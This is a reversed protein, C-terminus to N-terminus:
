DLAMRDLSSKASRPRNLATPADRAAGTAEPLHDARHRPRREYARRRAATSRHAGAGVRQQDEHLLRGVLHWSNVQCSQPGECAHHRSQVRQRFPSYAHKLTAEQLGVM